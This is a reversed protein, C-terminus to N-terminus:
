LPCKGPGQHRRQEICPLVALIPSADQCMPITSINSDTRVRPTDNRHPGMLFKWELSNSHLNGKVFAQMVDIIRWSPKTEREWALSLGESVSDSYNSRVVFKRTLHYSGAHSLGVDTRIRPLRTEM